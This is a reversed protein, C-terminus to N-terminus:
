EVTKRESHCIQVLGNKSNTGHGSRSNHSYIILNLLALLEFTGTLTILCGSITLMLSDESDERDIEEVGGEETMGDGASDVRLKVSGFSTM